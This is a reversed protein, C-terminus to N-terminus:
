RAGTLCLEGRKVMQDTIARDSQTIDEDSIWFSEYPISEKLGAIRWARGHSLDSVDKANKSKFADIIMHVTNIEDASFVSLDPDRLAVVRKQKYATSLSIEQIAIDGNIKMKRSVPLLRKPAPGYELKMYESGTIGVGHNAYNYFDSYYLIKNLKTAGFNPDNQCKAAIYLILEELKKQAKPIDQEFTPEIKALKRSEKSM